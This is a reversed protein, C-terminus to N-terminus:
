AASKNRKVLILRNRGNKYNYKMEDTLSKILGIGWGGVTQEQVDEEKRPKKFSIPNFPLADDELTAMFIGNDFDFSIWIYGKKGHYGHNIINVCAEEVAVQLELIEEEDFGANSMRKGMCGIIKPISEKYATFKTHYHDQVRDLARIIIVTIDDHQERGKSFESIDILLKKLIDKIQEQNNKRITDIFRDLGYVEERSNMAEIVGDTYFIAVDGPAFKICCEEYEADNTVGLVIGKPPEEEFISTAARFLLPPPHGANAYHFSLSKWDLIGYLLTVFMGVSADAAIMKNANKIVKAVQSQNTANARVITRSLAMFLAASISKGAVDAIVIGYNGEPQAIFDYFDGGVEMAPITIAEIEFRPIEPTKDPIFSKQIDAAIQLETRTRELKQEINRRETIDRISEISGVEDGGANYLKAAKALLYSGNPGLNPIFVEGLVADDEKQFSAYEAELEKNPELVMDALIPKRFGYFPLAYEYNGKGLMDEASVHTLSEMAKNWVIVRGNLDIALIPDPIFEIIDTLRRKSQKLAEETVKLETIDRGVSQIEKLSGLENFIGHSTWHIWREGEQKFFQSEFASVPRDPSLQDIALIPRAVNENPIFNDIKKGIIKDLGCSFFKCFGENAFTITGDALNRVILDSQEEIVARYRKESKILDEKSQELAGLMDNISSALWSLEDKGKVELRSTAGQSKGIKSVESTLFGLPSLVSTDIYLLTLILLFIGAASFLILFNQLSGMGQM